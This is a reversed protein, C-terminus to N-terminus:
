RGVGRIAGLVLTRMLEVIEGRKEQVALGIFPRPPMYKTGDHVYRAYPAVAGDSYVAHIGDVIKARRISQALMGTRRPIPMRGIAPHKRIWHAVHPGSVHHIVRRALIDAGQGAAKEVAERTIGKVRILKTHWGTTDIM